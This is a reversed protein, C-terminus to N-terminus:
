ISGLVRVIERIHEPTTGCCGGIYDIGIALLDPVRAAFEAPSERYVVKGGVLQPLGANPKVWVPLSTAERLKLLPNIVEGIGVGCNMGVIDAGADALAVACNQASDGMATFCRDAGSDFVMSAVVPMDTSDKAARVAILAEALETMSECLLADAGGEALATAQEAFADQLEEPEVEEMMVIKGSPGLSGFVKVDEGAAQRSIKAGALSLEVARDALGHRELIIRNGTFTNTLIVQSGAEVYRNAVQLVYDPQEVNWRERCFGPECGFGDLQTGWAGDAVTVNRGYTDSCM